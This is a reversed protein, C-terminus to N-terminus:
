AANSIGAQRAGEILLDFQGKTEIRGSGTAVGRVTVGVRWGEGERAIRYLNWAAGHGHEDARASASPVGLVPVPQAPEGIRGLAARHDHGHLVLEAGEASLVEELRSADSLSKRWGGRARYPPHHVMVIRFLGRRGLARLMPGLAALQGEGLRGSAMFWPTPVASSLGVLAVEGRIRVAPVGEGTDGRMYDRWLGLGVAEEVAVYADHNGPIVSVREPPGLTALWGAGARFEAPLSINCIDGTVVIHDPAHALIDAQVLALVEPVHIHRRNRRWSQWGLVRKCLLEGARARPLPLHPDSLHAITFM